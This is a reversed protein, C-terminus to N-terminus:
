KGKTFSLSVSLLIFISLCWWWPSIGRWWVLYATGCVIVLDKVCETVLYLWM